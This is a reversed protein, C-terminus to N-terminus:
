FPKNPIPECSCKLLPRAQVALEWRLLNICALIHRNMKLRCKRCEVLGNSYKSLKSECIPCTSSSGKTYKSEITKIGEWACKYSIQNLFKRFWWNNLRRKLEKNRISVEQIKGNFKNFRKVRKNVFKRLGKLNEHILGYGKKECWKAISASVKHLESCVLNRQNKSLKSLAKRLVRRDKVYRQQIKRKRWFYGYGAKKLRSLDYRRIEGDSSVATVNDENVDIAIWGEPEKVEVIKSYSIHITTPTITISGLKANRLVELARKHLSIHIFQRPRTPFVLKDDEIKLAQNGIKAVLKRARPLKINPKKRKVKRYNKLITAAVEIASLVFWSHYGYKTLKKYVLKTLKFRGTVGNKLGVELCYNVMDRFDKLLHLVGGSPKYPLSVIKVVKVTEM